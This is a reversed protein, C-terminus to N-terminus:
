RSREVWVVRIGTGALRDNSGVQIGAATKHWGRGGLEVVGAM